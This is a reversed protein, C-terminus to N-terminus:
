HRLEVYPIFPSCVKTSRPSHAGSDRRKRTEPSSDSYDLTTARERPDARSTPTGDGYDLQIATKRPDARGSITIVSQPQHQVIREDVTYVAEVVPSVTIQRSNYFRGNLGKM